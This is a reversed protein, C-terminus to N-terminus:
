APVPADAFPWEGRYRARALFLAVGAVLAALGSAIYIWGSTVLIFTWLAFAVIGPIPYLWM